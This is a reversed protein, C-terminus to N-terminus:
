LHKLHFINNICNMQGRTQEQFLNGQEIAQFFFVIGFLFLFFLRFLWSRLLLRSHNTAIVKLNHIDM